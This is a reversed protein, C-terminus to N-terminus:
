RHKRHTQAYYIIGWIALQHVLYFGWGTARTWLTPEPLKWYYWTAGTDPLLEISALRSDLAWILLTFLASFVVGAWMVQSSSLGSPRKAEARASIPESKKAPTVESWRVSEEPAGTTSQNM